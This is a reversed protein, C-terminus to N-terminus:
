NRSEFSGPLRKTMADGGRHKKTKKRGQPLSSYTLGTPSGPLLGTNPDRAFPDQHKPKKKARKKKAV